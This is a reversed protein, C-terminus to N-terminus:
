SIRCLKIELPQICFYSRFMQLSCFSNNYHCNKKSKKSISVYVKNNSKMGFTIIDFPSELKFLHILLIKHTRVTFSLIQNSKYPSVINWWMVIDCFNLEALNYNCTLKNNARNIICQAYSIQIWGCECMEMVCLERKV